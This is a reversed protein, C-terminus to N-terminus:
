FDEPDTIELQELLDIAIGVFDTDTIIGLLRGNQVVPLCGYHHKQLYLAAERLNARGDITAVDRTMFESIRIESPNQVLSADSLRSEAVSLVDRHTVLGVLHATGDIVPIHHIGHDNMLAQADTLSDSETLTHLKISMMEDVTIM